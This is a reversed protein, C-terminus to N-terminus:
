IYAFQFGALGGSGGGSAGESKTVVVPFGGMSSTSVPNPESQAGPHLVPDSGPRGGSPQLPGPAPRRSSSMSSTRQKGGGLGGVPGLGLGVNNGGGLGLSGFRETVERFSDSNTGDGDDTHWSTAVSSSSRGGGNEGEGEGNGTRDTVVSGGSKTTVVSESSDPREKEGGGVGGLVGGVGGLVGGVGGDRMVENRLGSEGLGPIWASNVPATSFYDQQRPVPPFYSAPEDEGQTTTPSGMSYAHVPAGVAANIFGNRGWFVPTGPSMTVGPTFMPPSMMHHFQPSMPAGGGGGGGGGMGGNGNGSFNSAASMDGNMGSASASPIVPSQTPPPGYAFNFSPMSPTIPPLGHPTMLIHPSHAPHHLPSLSHMHLQPSMPQHLSPSITHPPGMPFGQLASPPPLAIRSPRHQQTTSSHSSSGTPSTNDSAPNAQSPPTPPNARMSLEGTSNYSMSPEMSSHQPIGQGIVGPPYHHSPPGYPSSPGPSHLFEFQYGPPPMPIQSPPRNLQHHAFSQQYQASMHSPTPSTPATLPM